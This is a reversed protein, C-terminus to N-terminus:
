ATMKMILLEQIDKVIVENEVPIMLWKTGNLPRVAKVIDIVQPDFTDERLAVLNALELKLVILVTFTEKEPYLTCLSRGSKHYKVNWGRQLSCSSYNLKPSAKFRQQIFTNLTTWWTLAPEKMYTFIDEYSLHGSDLVLDKEAM